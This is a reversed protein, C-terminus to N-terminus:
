SAIESLKKQKRIIYEITKINKNYILSLEKKDMNNNIFLDYIKKHDEKSLRSYTVRNDLFEQWGKTYINKYSNNSLINSVNKYDYSFRKAINSVTEGQMILTRITQIQQENFCLNKRFPTKGTRSLSMRRKTEDSHKKGTMLIKNKNGIKRKTEESLPIGRRSVNGGKNINYCCNKDKYQKIYYIELEDLLSKDAIVKLICFEFNNEGYKNFARQLHENDHTGKKLKWRHHLYRRYFSEGTQGIYVNGNVINKICYIGFDKKNDENIFKMKVGGKM